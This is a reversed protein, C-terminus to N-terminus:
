NNKDSNQNIITKVSESIFSNSLLQASKLIKSCVNATPNNSELLGLFIARKNLLVNLQCAEILSM